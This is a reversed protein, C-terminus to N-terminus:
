LGFLESTPLPERGYAVAEGFRKFYDWVADAKAQAAAAAKARADPDVRIFEHQKLQRSVWNNVREIHGSDLVRQMWATLRFRATNGLPGFFERDMAKELPVLHVVLERGQRTLGVSRFRRDSEAKRKDALGKKVLRSVLKSAGGKSMGIANGLEVPSWWQPGYLHRLAAWESGIIGCEALLRAFGKAFRRDANKVWYNCRARAPEVPEWIVAPRNTAEEQDREIDM